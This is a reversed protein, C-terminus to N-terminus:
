GLLLAISAASSLLLFLLAGLVLYVRSDSSPSDDTETPFSADLPPPSPSPAQPFAFPASGPDNPQSPGPLPEMQSHSPPRPAVPLHRAGSDPLPFPGSHSGSPRQGLTSPPPTGSVSPVPLAVPPPPAAIRGIEARNATTPGSVHAVGHSHPRPLATTAPEPAFPAVPVRAQQPKLTARQAQGAGSPFLAVTPPLNTPEDFADGDDQGYKDTEVDTENPSTQSRMLKSSSASPPLPGDLDAAWAADDDPPPANTEMGMPIPTGPDVITPNEFDYEDDVPAEAIPMSSEIDYEGIASVESALEVQISMDQVSMDQISMDLSEVTAARDMPLESLIGGRRYADHDKAFSWLANRLEDASQYRDHVHRALAKLVIADLAPPVESRLFSPPNAKASRAMKLTEFETGRRFLSRTTLMEYLIIGTAFVDSRHDVPLGRIQEPSMYAFKGKVLGALTQTSRGEAKAIGFDIIKVEGESSILINHPSIDRHVVKLPNGLNDRKNHAYHLGECVKLAVYCATPIEFHTRNKAKHKLIARLDQGRVYEQVIYYRGDTVGLDFIQAINTHNLQGAIKAEDILMTVFEDDSAIQPLLVKLAVEREFGAEGFSKARYVEAMGGHSIREVLTYNGFQKAEM